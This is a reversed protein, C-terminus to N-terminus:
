ECFHNALIPPSVDLECDGCPVVVGGRGGRQQREACRWWRRGSPSRWPRRRVDELALSRQERDKHDGGVCTATTTVTASVGVGVSAATTYRWRRRRGGGGDTTGRMDDRGFM